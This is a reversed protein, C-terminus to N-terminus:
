PRAPFCSCSKVWVRAPDLFYNGLTDICNGEEHPGGSDKNIGINGQPRMCRFNGYPAGSEVM